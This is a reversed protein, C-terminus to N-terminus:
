GRRPLVVREGTAHWRVIGLRAMRLHMSCLGLLLGPRTCRQKTVTDRALCATVRRRRLPPDAALAPWTPPTPRTPADTVLRRVRERSVPSAPQRTGFGAPLAAPATKPPLRFLPKGDDDLLGLQKVLKATPRRTRITIRQTANAAIWPQVWGIARLMPKDGVKVPMRLVLAAILYHGRRLRVHATDTLVTPFPEGKRGGADQFTLVVPLPQGIGERYSVAVDVDTTLVAGASLDYRKVAPGGLRRAPAPRLETSAVDLLKRIGQSALEKGLWVLAGTLGPEVV